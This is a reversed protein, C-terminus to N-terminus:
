NQNGRYESPTICEFKKFFRNFSQVNHYGVRAAIDKISLAAEERLLIKAQEIRIENVVDLLSQNTKHKVLRRAHSYSIGIQESMQEFDIDEMYHEHIYEMIHDIHSFESREEEFYAVISMVRKRLISLLEDLTEAASEEAYWAQMGGEFIDDIAYNEMLWAGIVGTLQNIAQLINDVDLQQLKTRLLALAEDVVPASAAALGNLLMTECKKSYCYLHARTMEEQYLITQGRGHLLRQRAATVAQRYSEYLGSTGEQWMGVGVTFTAQSHLAVGSRLSGVVERVGAFWEDQEPRPLNFVLACIKVDMPLLEFTYKECVAPMAALADSLLMAFEPHKERGGDAELLAVAFGSYKWEIPIEKDWTTDHLLSLLYLHKADTRSQKAGALLEQERQQLRQIEGEILLIENRVDGGHEQLKKSLQAIPALMNRTSHLCVMSGAVILVMMGLLYSRTAKLSETTFFHLRNENALTWSGADTHRFCYLTQNESFIGQREEKGYSSGSETGSAAFARALASEKELSTGVMALDPHCVVRGADDVIYVTNQEDVNILEAIRTEYYNMILLSLSRSNAIRVPLVYSIVPTQDDRSGNSLLDTEPTIRGMWMPTRLTDAAEAYTMYSDLWEADSLASFRLLARDSTIVYDTGLTYLYVNRLREDAFQVTALRQAIDRIEEQLEANRMVQDYFKFDTAATIYDESSTIRMAEASATDALLEFVQHIYELNSQVSNKREQMSLFTIQNAYSTFLWIVPLVLAIGILLLQQFLLSFKRMLM